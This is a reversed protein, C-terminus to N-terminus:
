ADVVERGCIPCAKFNHRLANGRFLGVTSWPAGCESCGCATSNGSLGSQNFPPNGFCDMPVTHCTGRGLTAEIAQEPTALQVELFLRGDGMETARNHYVHPLPKGNKDHPQGWLTEVQASMSGSMIHQHEKWEVGREDLLERLRETATM